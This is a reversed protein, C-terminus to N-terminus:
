GRGSRDPCCRRSTSSKTRRRPPLSRTTTSCSSFRRRSSISSTRSQSARAPWSCEVLLTKALGGANSARSRPPATAAREYRAGSPSRCIGAAAFCSSGDGVCARGAAFARLKSAPSPASRSSCTRGGSRSCSRSSDKRASAAASSRGCSRGARARACYSVSAARTTACRSTACRFRSSAPRAAIERREIESPGGQTPTRRERHARRAHVHDAVVTGDREIAVRADYSTRSRTPATACALPRTTGLGTRAPITGSVILFRLSGGIRRRREGGRGPVVTRM